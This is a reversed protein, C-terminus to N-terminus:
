EKKKLKNELEPIVFENEFVSKAFDNIKFPKKRKDKSTGADEIIEEDKLKKLNELIAVRSKGLYNGVETSTTEGGLLIATKLIKMETRIKGHKREWSYIPILKKLSEVVQSYPKYGKSKLAETIGKKTLVERKAKIADELIIDSFKLAFKPIGGCFDSIEQLIEDNFLEINGESKHKFLNMRAKLLAVTPEKKLPKLFIVEEYTDMATIEEELMFDYMTVNWPSMFVALDGSLRDLELFKRFRTKLDTHKGKSNIFKRVGCFPSFVLIMKKNKVAAEIESKLQILVDENVNNAEIGFVTFIKDKIKMNTHTEEETEVSYSYHKFLNMLSRSGVGDAGVVAVDKGAGLLSEVFEKSLNEIEEKRDVFLVDQNSSLPYEYGSFPNSWFGYKGYDEAFKTGQQKVSKEICNKLFSLGDEM